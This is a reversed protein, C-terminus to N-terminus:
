VVRLWIIPVGFGATYIISGAASSPLTGFTFAKYTSAGVVSPSAAGIWWLKSTNGRRMGPTADFVVALFYFGVDLSQSITIEKIGTTSTSVTGADLVLDGPEGTSMDCEFIGLRADGSSLTTVEVGIRTWTERSRVEFPIFYMRDAAVTFSSTSPVYEGTYYRDNVASPAANAIGLLDELVIHKNAGDHIPLKNTQLAFGSTLATLDDYNLALSINGSSGDGDQVDVGGSGDVISRLAWTNAATRTALGTQNLAAIAALDADYAQVVSGIETDFIFNTDSLAADFQAATGSLTNSTLNLTKGTLTQTATTGVLDGAPPTPGDVLDGDANWIAFDGSTGPTGTILTGDAGSKLVSAIETIADVADASLEVDSFSVTGGAFALANASHTVTVDGANFNLVAGSALFLDSFGLSATGLAAGDNSNPVLTDALRIFESGKAALLLGVDTDSGTAALQPDNGTAANTIELYNVASAVKQFLLQENNDDDYIGHAADFLVNFSNTDLDGGLQPSTDEVLNTAGVPGPNALLAFKDADTTTTLGSIHSIPFSVFGAGNTAAGTAHVTISKGDVVRTLIFRARVTALADDWTLMETEINNGEFDTDNFYINNALSFDANDFQFEGSAPNGGTGSDFEFTYTPADSNAVAVDRANEAANQAATATAASAAAATASSSASTASTSASTASSAANTASTGANTEATEAATQALEAATQAAEAATQAAQAATSAATATTADVDDKRAFLIETM